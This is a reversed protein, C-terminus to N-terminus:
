WKKEPCHETGLAAKAWLMCGCHPCRWGDVCDSCITRRRIYEAKDVCKLGSKGWRVMAKTFSAAMQPVTPKPRPKQIKTPPTILKKSPSKILPKDFYFGFRCCWIKKASAHKCKRCQEINVMEPKTIKNCSM